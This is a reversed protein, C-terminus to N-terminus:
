SKRRGRGYAVLGLLGGGLLLLTGPEPCPAGELESLHSVKNINLVDSVYIDDLDLVAWSMNSINEFLYDVYSNTKNNGTKILFYDPGSAGFDFAWTGGESTQLWFDDAEHDDEGFDHKAELTIDAGLIEQAWTLEAGEGTLLHTEGIKLDISGVDILTDEFTVTLAWTPASVALLISLVMSIVLSRKM